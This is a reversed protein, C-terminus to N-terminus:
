ERLSKCDKSLTLAAALTMLSFYASMPTSTRQKFAPPVHYHLENEEEKTCGCGSRGREGEGGMTEYESPLDFSEVVGLLGKRVKV